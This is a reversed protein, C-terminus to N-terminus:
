MCKSKAMESVSNQAQQTIDVVVVVVPVVETAVVVASSRELATGCM